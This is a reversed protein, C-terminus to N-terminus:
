FWDTYLLRKLEPLHKKMLVYGETRLEAGRKFDLIGVDSAFDGLLLDVPNLKLDLNRYNKMLIYLPQTFRSIFSSYDAKIAKGTTCGLVVEAGQQRLFQAGFGASFDGDVYFDDGLPVPKVLFPLASSAVLTTALDGQGIFECSQTRLNTVQIWLKIKSAEIQYDGVIDRIFNISREISAVTLTKASQWPNFYDDAGFQRFHNYLEDLPVGAAYMGGVVAGWSSGVIYDIEIKEEALADLVGIYLGTRAGGGRLSLGLRKQGTRRWGLSYKLRRFIDLGIDKM